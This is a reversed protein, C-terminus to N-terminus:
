SLTHETLELADDHFGPETQTMTIIAKGCLCVYSM